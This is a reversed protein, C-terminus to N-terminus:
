LTRLLDVSLGLTQSGSRLITRNRDHGFRDSEQRSSVKGRPNESAFYTRFRCCCASCRHISWDPMRFERELTFEIQPQTLAQAYNPSKPSQAGKNM